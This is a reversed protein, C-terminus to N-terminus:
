PAGPGYCGEGAALNRMRHDGHGNCPAAQPREPLRRWFLGRKSHIAVVAEKGQESVVTVKCEGKRIYFVADAPDGQAFVAEDKRYKSITRGGDM